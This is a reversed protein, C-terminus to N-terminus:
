TFLTNTSSLNVFINAIGGGSTDIEATIGVLERSAMDRHYAGNAAYQNSVSMQKIGIQALTYHACAYVIQPRVILKNQQLYTILSPSPGLSRRNGVGYGFEFALLSHDEYMGTFAGRYNNLIVWDMWERAKKRQTYWDATDSDPATVYSVWDAIDLMDKYTCYTLIPETGGGAAPRVRIQGRWIAKPDTDGSPTRLVLLTYDADPTLLSSQMGTVTVVFQAQGYGNQTLGSTLNTTLWAPTVAFIAAQSQGPYVYASLMDGAQWDAPSTLAGDNWAQLPYDKGTGQVIALQNSGGGGSVILTGADPDVLNM